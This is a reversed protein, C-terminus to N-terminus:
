FFFLFSWLSTRRLFRFLLIVHLISCCSSWIFSYLLFFSRNGAYMLVLVCCYTQAVCSEIYMLQFVTLVDICVLRHNVLKSRLVTHISLFMRVTVWLSLFMVHPTFFCIIWSNESGFLSHVSLSDCSKENILKSVRHCSTDLFVHLCFFYCKTFPFLHNVFVTFRLWPPM